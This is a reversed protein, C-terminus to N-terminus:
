LPVGSRIVGVGLGEIELSHSHLDILITAYDSNEPILRVTRGARRFRKVTVEDNVRAVVIQGSTVDHTRKVALLDGHLIGAGRMSMGLVRLLYDARPHFVEPDVALYDEIHQEAFIPQGAAVRGIVALQAPPGPRALVKIGRSAGPTLEVAGKRALARLHAEAANASRFGLERAIEMRTPPLGRRDIWRQVLELVERQRATLPM